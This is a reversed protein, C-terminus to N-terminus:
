VEEGFDERYKEKDVFIRRMGKENLESIYKRQEMIDILKGAKPYGIGLNRQIGSISAKGSMIVIRVAEKLYKYIENNYMTIIDNKNTTNVDDDKSSENAVKNFELGRVLYDISCNFINSLAVLLDISPDSKKSEWKSVAKDSINLKEALQLQTWGKEKRLSVIRDGITNEM